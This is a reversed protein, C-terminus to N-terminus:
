YGAREGKGKEMWEICDMIIKVAVTSIKKPNTYISNPSTEWFRRKMFFTWPQPNRWVPGCHIGIRIKIHDTDIDLMVAKWTLALLDFAMVAVTDAYKIGGEPVGVVITCDDGATHLRFINPDKITAMHSNILMQFREVLAVASEGHTADLLDDYDVM